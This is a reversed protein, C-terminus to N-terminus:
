SRAMVQLLEIGVDHEQLFHIAKARAALITVHRPLSRLSGRRRHM